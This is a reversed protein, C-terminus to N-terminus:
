WEEVTIASCHGDHGPPSDCLLWPKDPHPQGCEAEDFGVLPPDFVMSLTGCHDCKGSRDNIPAEPDERRLRM